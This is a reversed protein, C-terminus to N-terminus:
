RKAVTGLCTAFADCTSQELCREADVMAEREDDAPPVNCTKECTATTEAADKRAKNLVAVDAANAKVTQELSEIGCTTARECVSRCYAAQDFVRASATAAGKASAADASDCGLGFLATAPLWLLLRTM